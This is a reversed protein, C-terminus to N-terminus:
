SHSFMGSRFRNAVLVPYQNGTKLRIDPVVEHSGTSEWRSVSRNTYAGPISAHSCYDTGIRLNSSMQHSAVTGLRLYARRLRM